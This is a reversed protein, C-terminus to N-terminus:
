MGALRAFRSVAKADIEYLVGKVCMCVCVCV